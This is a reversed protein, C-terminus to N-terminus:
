KVGKVAIATAILHISGDEKIPLSSYIKEKLRARNEESLSMCYGPAPGVGSLFPTWYDDFDKFVTPIDIDIVEVSKFGADKFLNDISETNCMPFRVGEDKWAADDYLSVAADWFYRMMEMRGAYDWVYGSVVAGNRAVKKLEGLAHEIDPIFNLVLGSVIVDVSNTELPLQSAGATYFEARIDSINELAFQLQSESPDVGIVKKPKQTNLIKETLAGTGCGVDLWILGERQNLWKLFEIATLRSWRGVYSEYQRANNWKDM